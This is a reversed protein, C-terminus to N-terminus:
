IWYSRNWSFLLSMNFIIYTNYYALREFCIIHQVIHFKFINFCKLFRTCFNIFTQQTL